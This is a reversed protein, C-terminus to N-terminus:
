VVQIAPLRGSHPEDDLRRGTSARGRRTLAAVPRLVTAM